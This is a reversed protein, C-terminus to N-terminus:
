KRVELRYTSNETKIVFEQCDPGSMLPKVEQIPTTGIMRVSGPVELGEGFLVFGTGVEPPWTPTVGEVVDTRVNNHSSAVKTLKVKTM